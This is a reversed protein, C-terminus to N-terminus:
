SAEDGKPDNFERTNSPRKHEENSTVPDKVISYASGPVEILLEDEVINEEIELHGQDEPNSDRQETNQRFIQASILVTLQRKAKVRTSRREARQAATVDAHCAVCLTRMNELRCEGGGRYVPIIHDAHWANGETPDHVLKDLLKKHMALKPAANEVYEQRKTFSLPRIYEVLKHCNLRCNTCIGHEIQFLEERLSRNSTRLRYEDYCGLNCFLDEFYEPMKANNSKCPTQCLKCLPEDTVTWGQTYEREKKRHGNRLHVKKWVADPPLPHSIEQLPTTRRKSGGKLLGGNDHNLSENLYCLEISLPLQLPKALLKKQVIPRLSNWESCFAVLAHRYAPNDKISKYPVKKDNDAPLNQSELEEPRFNEFLPRPRADVGPICSYLHIRGTYQSVEFRLFEARTSSVSDAEILEVSGGNKLGATEILINDAKELNNNEESSEKLDHLFLGGANGTRAESATGGVGGDLVSCNEMNRNGVMDAEEICRNNNKSSISGMENERDYIKNAKEVIEDHPETPRLEEDLSINPIKKLEVSSLEGNTATELFSKECSGGSKGATELYSVSQIEIEHIADYKGNTTSSVRQLSKNLCQWRSEDLTDKACFIYINVANTQGRRHARDEAQLMLSPSQPLELFVVYRAASFDLGVGGATIGIIAIKVQVGNLVKHHHAFIIMKSSSLSLERNEEGDLEKIIPHMSLWECFGSLKAIGLEQESLKRSSRRCGGTDDLKDSINLPEDEAVNKESADKDVIGGVDLAKDIDARKLLLNIIQRRKPPLQTLVHAKLRRIMVTQKLLVNLEELRIGKSFDMFSKGERRRVVKVSCYTKAFEYKDKGLLGPWLMNIQHFIDYPRSLSPTGSLLVIHNVKTAVDLVAKIEESESPKKTCRVHHSEDVILIAWERELISRRLRHLMTYSIVVVRPCRKLHAPNNQHGFVLHIDSPLCFPVWRELEEAWSFRLIAPCVVLVSGESMFCCAIAIAQLTKGLGMEDAILCRGGRQLGFRVGELQFPLLADLLKKPLNNILEDVKEESLHEPRCPMWRGAVFSHSLREVVNLTVWPIEEYEFGKSNKLCRLVADYDTLRYVCAKGGGHNQTYHSPVVNSLCDRLKELCAAEGPYTFGQIAEPTVYFSDPSCIELRVRFKEPLHPQLFPDFSSPMTPKPFSTNHELSVKRCKFLKWSDQVTTASASEAVAKRKALAALRNAEARKRQEETIEM